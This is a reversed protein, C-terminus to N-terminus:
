THPGLLAKFGTVVPHGVVAPLDLDGTDFLATKMGLERAADLNAISTDVYLCHAYAIGSERRLVEFMAVNSTTVGVESSVLWPWVASLRDRERVATSWTAADNTTTAVPIRRRQMESLFAPAGPHLARQAVYRADIEASEGDLDCLEWFSATDLSGTLLGAFGEAITDARTTSGQDRLFPLVSADFPHPQDYLVAVAEVVVLRVTLPRTSATKAAAGPVVAVAGPVRSSLKQPTPAPRLRDARRQLVIGTIALMTALVFLSFLAIAIWRLLVATANEGTAEVSITLPGQDFRPTFNRVTPDADYFNQVSVQLDLAVVEDIVRGDTLRELPAGFPEGGLAAAVGEDSLLDFGDGVDLDFSMQQRNDAINVEVNTFVGPGAIEDLVSQWQNAGSVAKTATLSIGDDGDATAITWGARELDSVRLQGEVDGLAIQAERDLETRLMVTGTGDPEVDFDVRVDAQCATLVLLVFALLVRSARVRSV